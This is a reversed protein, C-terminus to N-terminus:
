LVAQLDTTFSLPFWFSPFSFTQIVYVDACCVQHVCKQRQPSVFGQSGQIRVGAPSLPYGAFLEPLRKAQVDNTNCRRISPVDRKNSACVLMDPRIEPGKRHVPSHTLVIQAKPSSVVRSKLWARADTNTEAKKDHAFIAIPPTAM